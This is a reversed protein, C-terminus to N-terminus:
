EVVVKGIALMEPSKIRLYYLGSPLRATNVTISNIGSVLTLENALAVKGDIAFVALEAKSFEDSFISINLVDNVPNPFINAISQAISLIGDCVSVNVTVTVPNGACHANKGTVTYTTTADPSAVPDPISDNSLGTSPTWVYTEAGSATLTESSSDCITPNNPTVTVTPYTHMTVVETATDTGCDNTVTVTYSTTASTPNAVIAATTEGTSWSYFTGGSAILTVNQGQCINPAQPNIVATPPTSVVTVTVSTPNGACHANKGTVSYTTTVGPLAVPNSSTDSSLGTLPTWTYTEAGSAHLTIGTTSTNCVTPNGPTVTVTPRTHSTVVETDTATGCGNTVTVSYTTNVATPVDVIAATTEGTSWSYSTGGSATLTVNQGQCINPGPPNIAATPAAQDVTVTVTATDSCAGDTGTVTYSTTSAPFAAPNAVNTASLGTAPDWSYSSAGSATLVITDLGCIGPNAPSITIVPGPIVTVTTMASASCGATTGTVMYMTTSSPSATPDAVDSASLGDVPSWAYSDAGSAFLIVSEGSCITTNTPSVSVIPNQGVTVTVDDVATAGTSDTVILTYTTTSSPWANPNAATSDDLGVSPSWSYTYPGTGGSASPSGGITVTDSGCITLDSGADATPCIDTVVATTSSQTLTVVNGTVNQSLVSHNPLVPGAIAFSQPTVTLPANQAICPLSQGIITLSVNNATGGFSQTYGTVLGGNNTITIDQIVDASDGGLLIGFNLNGSTDAVFLLGDQTSSFSRTIGSVAYGEGPLTAIGSLDDDANGGYTNLWNFTFSQLSLAGIFLDDGTNGALIMEDSGGATIRRAEDQDPGGFLFQVQITDGSADTKFLYIDNQGAGPFGTSSGTVVYGGDDTQIVFYGLEDSNSGYTKFWDVNGDSDTKLLFVDQGGNGFSNTQGTIVFGSDATASIYTAYENGTSGYTKAWQLDGNDDTKILLIDMNGGASFSNSRGAIAFGDSVTIIATGFETGSGGYQKHWIFNGAADSKLLIADYGGAGTFNSSGVSFLDGSTSAVSMNAYDDSGLDYINEFPQARIIFVSLILISASFIKKM